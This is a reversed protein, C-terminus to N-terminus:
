GLQDWHWLRYWGLLGDVRVAIPHARPQPGVEEVSDALVPYCTAFIADNM